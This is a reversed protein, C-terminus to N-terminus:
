KVTPPSQEWLLQFMSRMMAVIYQDQIMLALPAKPQWIVLKNAFLFFSPVFPTAKSLYRVMRLPDQDTAISQASPDPLFLAQVRIGRRKRSEMWRAHKEKSIHEIFDTASGFFQFERGAEDLMQFFLREFQTAGEFVKISTPLEGQQYLALLDPMARSLEEQQQTIARQRAETLETLKTPPEVSFTKRLGKQESFSALGHTELSAIVKYINPRAVKLEAALTAISVPGLRLSTLYLEIDLPALHLERLLQRLLDESPLPM